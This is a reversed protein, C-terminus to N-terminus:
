PDKATLNGKTYERMAKTDMMRAATRAVVAFANVAEGRFQSPALEGTDVLSEMVAGSIELGVVNRSASTRPNLNM